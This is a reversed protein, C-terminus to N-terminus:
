ISCAQCVYSGNARDVPCWGLREAAMQHFYAALTRPTWLEALTASARSMANLEAQSRSAMRMMAAAISEAEPAVLYGNVGDRVFNTAAGCAYSAIIPLGAAAAEHIVVGWPERVSPMVLCRARGMVAPLERPQVFGQLEVGSVGAFLSALPGAGAVILDWPDGCQERYRRYAQVLGAINKATVLRGVYLFAARRATPALRNAFREVEAAYYGYLMRGYGLKRAFCAQRDGCVLLTDIAPRLFWRATVIGLYQKPTGRWQNDMAAVVCVGRRRMRRAVRM